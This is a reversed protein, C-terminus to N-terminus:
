KQLVWNFTVQGDVGINEVHDRWIEARMETKLWLMRCIEDMEDDKIQFIIDLVLWHLQSLSCNQQHKLQAYQM